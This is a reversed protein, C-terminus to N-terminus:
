AAKDPQSMGLAETTSNDVWFMLVYIGAKPNADGYEPYKLDVHRTTNNAEHIFLSRDAAAQEM